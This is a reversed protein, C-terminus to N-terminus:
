SLAPPARAPLPLSFDPLAPESETEVVRAFIVALSIAFCFPLVAEWLVGISVCLVAICLLAIVHRATV